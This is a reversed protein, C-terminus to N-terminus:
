RGMVERMAKNIRAAIEAGNYVRGIELGYFEATRRDHNVYEPSVCKPNQNGSCRKCIADLSDILEIALDPEKLVREALALGEYDAEKSEADKKRSAIVERSTPSQLIIEGNNFIIVNGNKHYGIMRQILNLHHGRLRTLETM